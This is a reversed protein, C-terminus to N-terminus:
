QPYIEYLYGQVMDKDACVYAESTALPAQLYAEFAIQNVTYVGQSYEKFM